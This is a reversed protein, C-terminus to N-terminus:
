EEVPSVEAAPSADPLLSAVDDIDALGTAAPRFSHRAVVLQVDLLEQCSLDGFVEVLEEDQLADMLRPWAEAEEGLGEFAGLRMAPMDPRFKTVHALTAAPMGDSERRGYLTALFPAWCEPFGTGVALMLMLARSRRDPLGGGNEEAGYSRLLRYVNVLRKAARPSPVFAHLGKLYGCEAANLELVDESRRAEAAAHDQFEQARQEETSPEVLREAPVAEREGGRKAEDDEPRTDPQAEPVDGGGGEDGRTEEVSTLADILQRFSGADIPQLSIPIQFIKELYAMPTTPSIVRAREGGGETLGFLEKYVVRLSGLLWRADVAVVIVFLEFSLLMHIAQLVAVVQKPECRDLDDIYLVIREIPKVSPLSGDSDSRDDAPLALAPANKKMFRSLAQLDKRVMTVLGQKARYDTARAREFIFNRLSEAPDMSAREEELAALASAHQAIQEEQQGIWKAVFALQDDSVTDSSALAQRLAALMGPQDADKGDKVADGLTTKAKEIGQDLRTEFARVLGFAERFRLGLGILPLGVGALSTVTMGAMLGLTRSKPALGDVDLFLAGVTVGAAATALALLGLCGLGRKLDLGEFRERLVEFFARGLFQWRRERLIQRAARLELADDLSRGWGVAAAAKKLEECETEDFMKSLAVLKRGEETRERLQELFGKAREYRLREQALMGKEADIAQSLALRRKEGDSQDKEPVMAKALEDFLHGVLSAWLDTDSYHWANFRIHAVHRCTQGDQESEGGGKQAEDAERAAESLKTIEQELLRMFTTKGAGWNGLLGISLPPTMRRSAIIRALIEAEKRRGLDDEQRGRGVDDNKFFVPATSVAIDPKGDRPPEESRDIEDLDEVKSPPHDPPDGDRAGSDPAEVGTDTHESPGADPREPSPGGPEVSYFGPRKREKPLPPTSGGPPRLGFEETLSALQPRSLLVDLADGNFVRVDTLGISGLATVIARVSRKGPCFLWLQAPRESREGLESLVQRVRDPQVTWTNAWRVEVLAMGGDPREVVLDGFVRNGVAFGGRQVKGLGARTIVGVALEESRSSSLKALWPVIKGLHIEHSPPESPESPESPAPGLVLAQLAAVESARNPREAMWRQFLDEDVLGRRLLADVTQEVFLAPTAGYPDPLSRVLEEGQRGTRLLRVLEQTKFMAQFGEELAQRALITDVKTTAM